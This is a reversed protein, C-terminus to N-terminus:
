INVLKLQINSGGDSSYSQWGTYTWKNNSFKSTRYVQIGTNSDSLVQLVPTVNFEGLVELVYRNNASTTLSISTSDPITGLTTTGNCLYIGIAATDLNLQTPKYVSLKSLNLLRGQNASLSSTSDTSTLNDVVNSNLVNWEGITTGVINRQYMKNNAAILLQVSSSSKGISLVISNSSVGSPLTGSPINDIIYNIRNDLFGDINDTSSLLKYSFKDSLANNLYDLSTETDNLADEIIQSNENFVSISYVDSGLPKQLSIPM